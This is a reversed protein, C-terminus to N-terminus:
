AAGSRRAGVPTRGHAAGNQSTEPPDFAAGLRRFVVQKLTTSAADLDDNPLWLVAPVWQFVQHYSAWRRELREPTREGKRAYAVEPPLAVFVPVAPTPTIRILQRIWEWDRGDAAEVLMDYFYRDMILIRRRVGEHYLRIVLFVALDIAYVGQRVWRNRMITNRIRRYGRAPGTRGENGSPSHAPTAAQPRRLLRDRMRRLSAYVGVQHIMHVVAVRRGRQELAQKLVGILTSKGSGDLGSFSIFM